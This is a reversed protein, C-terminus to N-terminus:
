WPVLSGDPFDCPGIGLESLGEGDAGEFFFYSYKLRFVLDPALYCEVLEM